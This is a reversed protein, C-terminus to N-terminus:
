SQSMTSNGLCWVILPSNMLQDCVRFNGTRVKVKFISEQFGSPPPSSPM